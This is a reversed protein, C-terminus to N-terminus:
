INCVKCSKVGNGNSIEHSGVNGVTLKFIDERGVEANIDGLLVKMNYRPFQDFVRGLEECFSDKVVDDSKDECPTHVNLIIINYWRDRIVCARVCM